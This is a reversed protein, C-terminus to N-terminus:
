KPGRARSCDSQGDSPVRPRARLTTTARGFKRFNLKRVALRMGEPARPAAAPRSDCRRSRMGMSWQFFSRGAVGPPCPRACRLAHM